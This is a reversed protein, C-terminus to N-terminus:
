PLKTIHLNKLRVYKDNGTGNNCKIKIRCYYDTNGTKTFETHERFDNLEIAGGLFYEHTSDGILIYIQPYNTQICNTEATFTIKLSDIDNNSINFTTDLINYGWIVLSDIKLIETETPPNNGTNNVVNDSGCAFFIILVLLNLHIVAKKLSSKIKKFRATEPILNFMKVKGKEKKLGCLKDFNENHWKLLKNYEKREELKM